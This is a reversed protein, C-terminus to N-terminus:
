NNNKLIDIIRTPIRINNVNTTVNKLLSKEEKIFPNFTIKEDMITISHMGWKINSLDMRFTRRGPGALSYVETWEEPCYVHSFKFVKEWEMRSFQIDFTLKSQYDNEGYRFVVGERYENELGGPALDPYINFLLEPPTLNNLTKDIFKVKKVIIQIEPSKANGITNLIRTENLRIYEWIINNVLQFMEQITLMSYDSETKRIPYYWASTTNVIGVMYSPNFPPPNHPTLSSDDTKSKKM